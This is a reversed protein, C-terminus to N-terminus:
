HGFMFGPALSLQMNWLEWACPVSVGPTRRRDSPNAAMGTGNEEELVRSQLM